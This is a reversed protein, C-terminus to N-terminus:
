MSFWNRVEGSIASRSARGAAGRGSSSTTITAGRVWSEQTSRCVMRLPRMRKQRVCAVRGAAIAHAQEIGGDLLAALRGVGHDMGLDHDDVVAEQADARGVEVVARHAGVGLAVEDDLRAVSRSRAGDQREAVPQQALMAADVASVTAAAQRPVARQHPGSTASAGVPVAQARDVVALGISLLRASTM